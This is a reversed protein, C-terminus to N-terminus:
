EGKDDFTKYYYESTSANQKTKLAKSSQCHNLSISNDPNRSTTTTPPLGM